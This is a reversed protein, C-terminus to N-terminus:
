FVFTNKKWKKRPFPRSHKCRGVLRKYVPLQSAIQHFNGNNGTLDYLPELNQRAPRLLCFDFIPSQWFHHILAAPKVSFSSYFITKLSRRNQQHEKKLSTIGYTPVLIRLNEFQCTVADFFGGLKRFLLVRNSTPAFLHFLPIRKRCSLPSILTPHKGSIIKADPETLREIIISQSFQFSMPLFRWMKKM